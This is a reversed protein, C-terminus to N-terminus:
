FVDGKAIGRMKYVEYRRLRTAPDNDVKSSLAVAHKAQESAEELMKHDYLYRAYNYYYRTNYPYLEIASEYLRCIRQKNGTASFESLVTALRVPYDSAFSRISIAREFSAVAASFKAADHNNGTRYQNLLINGRIIYLDANGSSRLIASQVIALKRELSEGDRESGVGAYVAREAAAAVFDNWIGWIGWCLGFLILMYSLRSRLRVRINLMGWSRQRSLLLGAFVWFLGSLGPFYLLDSSLGYLLFSILGLKLLKESWGFDCDRSKLWVRRYGLVFLLPLLIFNVLFHVMFSMFSSSAGQLMDYFEHLFFSLGMHDFVGLVTPVYFLIFALICAYRVPKQLVEASLTVEKHLRREAKGTFIVVLQMLMFAVALIVGGDAMIQAYLNGARGLGIEQPSKFQAHVESFNDLGWGSFPSATFAKLATLSPLLKLQLRHKLLDSIARLDSTVPALLVPILLLIIFIIFGLGIYYEGTKNLGNNFRVLLFELEFYWLSAFVLQALFGDTALWVGLVMILSFVTVLGTWGIVLLSDKCVGSRFKIVLYLVICQFVKGLFIGYISGSLVVGLMSFFLLIDYRFRYDQLRKISLLLLMCLLSFACLGAAVGLGGDVFGGEVKSIFAQVILIGRSRLIDQFGPLKLTLERLYDLAFVKQYLAYVVVAYMLGGLVSLYIRFIKADRATIVVAFFIMIDSIWNVAMIRAIYYYGSFSSILVAASFLLMTLLLSKRPLILGNSLFRSIVATVVALLSLLNLFVTQPSFAGGGALFVRLMIYLVCIMSSIVFLRDSGKTNLNTLNRM